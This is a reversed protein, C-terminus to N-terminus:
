DSTQNKIATELKQLIESESRPNEQCKQAWTRGPHIVDWPSRKQKYRGSGPDHNGFGDLTINWIPSFRRILLSEGLPIWIDDVVLYRCHFDSLHLNETEEISRAHQYLRHFLYRGSTPNVDFKARRSGKPIAKGVYIPWDYRNEANRQAIAQYASFDGTYYILYVGAGHFPAPPLSAVPRSLIANAVSEALHLKDLPNYATEDNM